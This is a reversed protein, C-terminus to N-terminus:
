MMDATTALVSGGGAGVTPSLQEVAEFVILVIWFVDPRRTMGHRYMFEVLAALHNDVGLRDPLSFLLTGPSELAMVTRRAFGHVDRARFMFRLPRMWRVLQDVYQDDTDRLTGDVDFCLARIRTLDLPM